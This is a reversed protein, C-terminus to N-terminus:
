PVIAAEVCECMTHYLVMHVEQISSTAGAQVHLSFDALDKARGGHNGTLLISPLNMIRCQELAKIINNSNGSTSIAIFLDRETAKGALQRAFIHDFGFDNGIATLISSDVTLAEAPLPARDRALRVVFECALHQADAASGGNGAIYIRGGNRYREILLSVARQFVHLQAPDDMLSQKARISAKLNNELAHAFEM